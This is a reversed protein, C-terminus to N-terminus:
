LSRYFEVDVDEPDISAHLGMCVLGENVDYFIYADAEIFRCFSM